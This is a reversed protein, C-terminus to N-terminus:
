RGIAGLLPLHGPPVQVELLVAFGWWLLVVAVAAEIGARLWPRGLLVLVGWCLLFTAALFGLPELALAFAFLAAGLLGFRLLTRGDARKARPAPRAALWRRVLIAAQIAALLFLPLSLYLPFFRPGPGFTTYLRLNSTGFVVTLGAAFWGALVLWDTIHPPSPRGVDAPEQESM